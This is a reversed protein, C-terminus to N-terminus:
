MVQLIQAGYRVQTGTLDLKLRRKRHGSLHVHPTPVLVPRLAVMRSMAPKLGAVTKCTRFPLPGTAAVFSFAGELYVRLELVFWLYKTAM